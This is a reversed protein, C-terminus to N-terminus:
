KAEPVVKPLNYKEIYKLYREEWVSRQTRFLNNVGPQAGPMNWQSTDYWNHIGIQGVYSQCAAVLNAANPHHTVVIKYGDENEYLLYHGYSMLLPPTKSHHILNIRGVILPSLSNFHIHACVAYNSNTPDDLLFFGSPTGAHPGSQHKKLKYDIVTFKGNTMFSNADPQTLARSGQLVQDQQLYVKVSCFKFFNADQFLTLTINQVTIEMTVDTPQDRTSVVMPSPLGSSMYENKEEEGMSRWETKLNKLFQKNEPQNLFVFCPTFYGGYTPEDTGCATQITVSNNILLDPDKKTMQKKFDDLEKALIGSYCSDLIIVLHKNTKEGSANISKSKIAAIWPKLLGYLDCFGVKHLCLEGGQVKRNELVYGNAASFYDAALLNGYSPTSSYSLHEASNKGLGHGAYYWFVLENLDPKGTNRMAAFANNCALQILSGFESENMIDKRLIEQEKGNYFDVNFLEAKKVWNRVLEFDGITNTVDTGPSFGVSLLDPSPLLACRAHKEMSKLWENDMDQRKQLYENMKANMEAESLPSDCM